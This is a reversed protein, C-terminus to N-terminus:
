DNMPRNRLTESKSRFECFKGAGLANLAWATFTGQFKTVATSEFFVITIGWWIIWFTQRCTRENRYLVAVHCVSPRVSPRFHYFLIASLMSTCTLSCYFLLLCDNFIDTNASSFLKALLTYFWLWLSKIYYAEILPYNELVRFTFNQRCTSQIAFIQIRHVFIAHPITQSLIYM